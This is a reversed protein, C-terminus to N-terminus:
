RLQGRVAGDPYDANHVNIYYDEPNEKINDVLDSDVDVCGSAFGSSNPTPLTVVVGGAVGEVGNHIHAATSSAVNFVFLRVCIEDQNPRLRLTAWGVGNPDGPGPVEQGGTLFTSTRNTFLKGFNKGFGNGGSVVAHNSNVQNHISVSSTANGTTVSVDGGTNDSVKNGGTNTSVRVSNDIDANNEQHISVRHSSSFSTKNDSASGNESSHNDGAFASTALASLLFAGTAITTISRERLNRM